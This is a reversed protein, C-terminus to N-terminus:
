YDASDGMSSFDLEGTKDADGLDLPGKKGDKPSFELEAQDADGLDLPGKKRDDVSRNPVEPLDQATGKDAKVVKVQPKPDSATLDVDGSAGQAPRAGTNKIAGKEAPVAEVKRGGGGLLDDIQDDPLMVQGPATVVMQLKEQGRAKDKYRRIFGRVRVYEGKMKSIESTLFLDKDFFVVDFDSSRSRALKVITPGSDGMRIEGVSGLLVVEQGIKKNLRRPTDWRTLAIYNDHQEMEKEFAAIVEARSNWWTLREEYDPYHKKAPDWIGLKAVQAQKQAEVFENHYRRSYAYKSFYPAMGVRVSEVNYNVWKGNKEVLVYALYRGYYDRIEGPTDRELKVKTVGKFFSQAFAMADYGLPTAMKVPRSSNGKMKKVYEDWPMSDMSRREEAKHVIEETDIGILRLSAKLGKVRITDGDTVAADGDITFEGIELGVTEFRSLAQAAQAKSYRQESKTTGCAPALALASAALALLVNRTPIAPRM